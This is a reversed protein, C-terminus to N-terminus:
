PGSRVLRVHNLTTTPLNTAGGHIFSVAMMKGDYGRGTLPSSSWAWGSPTAPFWKTNIAPNSCAREALSFLEAHNPVRWPTVTSASNLASRWDGLFPTNVCTTTTADWVMGVVCRQWVLGTVTDRVESGAADAVEYRSDPRTELINANKNTCTAEAVGSLSLLGLLICISTNKM